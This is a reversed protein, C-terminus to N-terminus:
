SIMSARAVGGVGLFGSFFLGGSCRGFFVCQSLVHDDGIAASRNAEQTVGVTPL